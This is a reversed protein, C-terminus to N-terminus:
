AAVSAALWDRTRLLGEHLPVTPRWGLLEDALSSDACLRRVDGPRAARHELVPPPAGDPRVIEGIRRALEAISTEIGSGLNITRGIAADCTAAAIIGRATDDVFTFDRTQAGDGFVPLARGELAAMLFGPIVELGDGRLHAGPGYANFPRVIAVPLGYTLQWARAYAEGALKSAGYATTPATPHAEDVAPHLASGYVESSSVHVFRSVRARRAAELVALTGGANVDHTELPETLSFRLNRCALHILADCTALRDSWAGPFRVDGEVVTLRAPGYARLAERSGTVFNDVVLVEAGLALLQRVVAQGIFGAGGTVLVRRM